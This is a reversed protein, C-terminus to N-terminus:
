LTGHVPRPLFGFSGAMASCAGKLVLLARSPQRLFWGWPIIDAGKRSDVSFSLVERRAKEFTLVVECSLSVLAGHVGVIGLASVLGFVVSASFSEVAQEGAMAEGGASAGIAQDLGPADPDVPHSCSRAEADHGAIHDENIVFGEVRRRLGQGDFVVLRSADGARRCSVIRVIDDAPDVM